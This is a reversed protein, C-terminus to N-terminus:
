FNREAQLERIRSLRIRGHVLAPAGPDEDVLRLVRSGVLRAGGGPVDSRVHFFYHLRQLRLSNGELVVVERSHGPFAVHMHRARDLRCPELIGVAVDEGQDTSSLPLKSRRFARATAMAPSTVEVANPPKEVPRPLM